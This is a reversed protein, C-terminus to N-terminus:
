SAERLRGSEVDYIFARVSDTHPIFPSSRIRAISQRAEAELDAFTEASWPPRVGTEAEIQRRFEGDEFSMMGCGTHHIVVIARTGLQRQSIALSRIVDDTVVGGANRIIHADGPQLGLARIVDIRADMCAIVALQKAPPAPLGGGTLEAAYRENAALLEDIASVEATM